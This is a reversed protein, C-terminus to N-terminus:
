AGYYPPTEGHTCFELWRGIQEILIGTYMARQRQLTKGQRRGGLVFRTHGFAEARLDEEYFSM